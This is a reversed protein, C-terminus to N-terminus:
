HVATTSESKVEFSQDGLNAVSDQDGALSFTVLTARVTEENRKDPAVHTKRLIFARCAFKGSTTNGRGSRTELIKLQEEAGQIPQLRIVHGDVQDPLRTTVIISGHVTYPCYNRLSFSAPEDYNDFILLWRTNRKDSLWRSIYKLSQDGTLGTPERVDFVAEAMVRFSDKLADESSADLWLESSNEQHYQTAFAIALQTKGM